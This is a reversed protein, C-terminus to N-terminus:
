GFEVVREQEDEPAQHAKRDAAVAAVEAQRIALAQQADIEALSIADPANPANALREYMGLLERNISPEAPPRRLSIAVIAAALALGMIGTLIILATEM